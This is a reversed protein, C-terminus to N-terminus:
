PAGGGCQSAAGAAGEEAAAATLAQQQLLRLSRRSSKCPCWLCTHYISNSTISMYIHENYQFTIYSCYIGYMNAARAAWQSM